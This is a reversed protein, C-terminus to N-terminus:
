LKELRSAVVLLIIALVAIIGAASLDAVVNEWLERRRGCQDGVLV